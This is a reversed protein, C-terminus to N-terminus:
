GVFYSGIALTGVVFCYIAFWILKGRRVIQIMWQCAVLGALFAASFGALLAEPALGLAATPDQAYDKIKLLMAGFIPALVMLFSFRTAQDKDVRLLLAIAITTGSRSIGPTIALAQAVGITVAKLYTVPGGQAPRYFYTLSLLGGTLLLMSGVLLVNGSFLTEIQKEFLLGVFGVPIMSLVIKAAFDTSANWEFRLLDRLIQGIDRRFVVVTSLATAGHLIIAFLLNEESQAGFLASGLELHGSSSVPLFETLGQILGLIIAELLNM